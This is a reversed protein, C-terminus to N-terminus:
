PRVLPLPDIDSPLAHLAEYVADEASSNPDIMLRAASAARARRFAEEYQEQTPNGLEVQEQLTWAHNGLRKVVIREVSSRQEDASQSTLAHHLDRHQQALRSM